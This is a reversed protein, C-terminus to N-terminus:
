NVSAPAFIQYVPSNYEPIKDQGLKLVQVSLNLIKESARIQQVDEAMLIADEKTYLIGSEHIDSDWELWFTTKTPVVCQLFQQIEPTYIVFM